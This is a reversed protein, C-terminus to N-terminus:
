LLFIVSLAKLTQHLTLVNRLSYFSVATLTAFHLDCFLLATGNCAQLQGSHELFNLNGSKTVVACTPPLTTLRVCRGSKGWSISRTSMETLPQISSLAMTRDSPNYTLSFNWHCWRPDYWHDESKYCLVKVVTSSRNGTVFYYM